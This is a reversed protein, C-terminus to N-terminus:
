SNIKYKKLRRVVTPQSIGLLEAMEYTTKCQRFARCIWEREVKELADELTTFGSDLITMEEKKTEVKQNSHYFPLQEAMIINSDMTVVLREIVNEFERVNGPWNYQHFLDLADHHFVKGTEYKQNFKSLFYHAMQIIDEKRDRLPPVTIPVVSLRYFLDERFRGKKVMEELHNNTAALLRFDVKKVQHGGIRMVQKEELVKLLKVQMDMSLEGIEDLFLTGQDALEIMGAKGKQSAGTFAGAEYGFMESEFLAPPIAGCNVEIFAEKQRGSRNHLARAFMTKGVGSEGLLVVTADSKAVRNVLDWIKQMNKSKLVIEKSARLGELQVEYQDMRAQLQDYDEKLRQIETLDHSFSIIRILRKDHSFVPIGTAMVKGGKAATQMVQVEKKEKLVRATVSPTFIGQEELDRVSKGLFFAADRGYIEECKKSVRLVIGDGDTVVINDNSVNLIAELEMLLTEVLEM